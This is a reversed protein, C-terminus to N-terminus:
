FHFQTKYFDDSKKTRKEERTSILRLNLRVLTAITAAIDERRYRYLHYRIMIFKSRPDVPNGIHSALWDFADQPMASLTEAIEPTIKASAIPVNEDELFPLRAPPLPEEFKMQEWRRVRDTGLLNDAPPLAGVGSLMAMAVRLEQITYEDIIPQAIIQSLGPQDPDESFRKLLRLDDESLSSLKDSLQQARHVRIRKSAGIRVRNVNHILPLGELRM